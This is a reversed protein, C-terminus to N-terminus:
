IDSSMSCPTEDDDGPLYSSFLSNWLSNKELKDSSSSKATTQSKLVAKRKTEIARNLLDESISFLGDEYVIGSLDVIAGDEIIITDDFCGLEVGITIVHLLSQKESSTLGDEEAIFNVYRLIIMHCLVNNKKIQNWTLESLNVFPPEPLKEELQSSVGTFRQVFDIVDIAVRRPDTGIEIQGKAKGGRSAKFYLVGNRHHIGPLMKGRSMKRLREAWVTDKTLKAAEFLVPIVPPKSDAKSVPKDFVVNRPRKSNQVLSM